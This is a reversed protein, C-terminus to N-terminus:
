RLSWGLRLLGSSATWNGAVRVAVRQFVVVPTKNSPQLRVYEIGEIRGDNYDALHVAGPVGTGVAPSQSDLSEPLVDTVEADRPLPRQQRTAHCSTM